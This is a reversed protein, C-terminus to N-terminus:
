QGPGFTEPKSRSGQARRDHTPTTVITINQKLDTLDYVANYDEANLWSVLTKIYTAARGSLQCYEIYNKWRESLVEFTLKDGEFLRKDRVTFCTLIYAESPNGQPRLTWMKDVFEQKDVPPQKGLMLIERDTLPISM